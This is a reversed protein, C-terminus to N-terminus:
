RGMALPRLRKAVALAEGEGCSHASAVFAWRRLPEDRPRPVLRAHFHPVGEVTSLVYVREANVAQRIAAVLTALVSGYSAAEDPTMEAFDLFHRKSVLFLQGLTAMSPPAHYAYWWTDEYVNGGVTEPHRAGDGDRACILCEVADEAIISVCLAECV